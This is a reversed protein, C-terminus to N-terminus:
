FSSNLCYFITYLGLTSDIYNSFIQSLVIPNFGITLSLVIIILWHIKKKAYEGFIKLALFSVAFAVLTSIIKTTNLNNFLALVTAGFGWISKNAYSDIYVDGFQGSNIYEYIPNWGEKLRIIAISHYWAGDYSVDLFMNVIGLSIIFILIFTILSIIYDKLRIKIIKCQILYNIFSSLIFALPLHFPTISIKVLWGLTNIINVTVILLIIEVAVSFCIDLVNKKQM